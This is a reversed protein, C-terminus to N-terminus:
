HIVAIKIVKSQSDRMNKATVNAFYVGSEVDEVNWIVENPFGKVPNTITLTEVYFGALNYIKIEITEASECQIRLKVEDDYVPNPYAYSLDNVFLTTQVDKTLYKLHVSRSHFSDGNYLSWENGQSDSVEDFKWLYTSTSIYGFQDIKGVYVVEDNDFSTLQYIIEGVSNFIFIKNGNKSKIVVEPHPDGIINNVFIKSDFSGVIPFGPLLNLNKDYAYLNGGIDSLLIDVHGDLNLDSAVVSKYQAGDLTNIVTGNKSIHIGDVSTSVWLTDESDILTVEQQYLDLEEVTLSDYSGSFINNVIVIPESLQGSTETMIMNNTNSDFEFHYLHPDDFTSIINKYPEDPHNSQTLFIKGTYNFNDNDVKFYYKNELDELSAWWLVNEGGIIDKIGDNNIDCISHVNVLSDPFGDVLLSNSITFSMTDNPLPINEIKLFTSAGNNSETNPFSYPGFAPYGGGNISEYEYNGKFWMDGFYGSTPDFFMHINQYGIDQAGDAEELDVGKSERDVNISYWDETSEIISEDIHWILLGSAPLGSDYNPISTIVKNEDYEIDVSDLLVTYLGPYTGTDEWITYRTSDININEKYWNNRHEILFYENQNIQLQLISNSINRAPLLIESPAQVVIPDVWGAWKRTWADPPSPILGNGNNSGQDMLGFVGIGSEGTETNWLPPLGVAFGLMLAFTGTLGFQYQCPDSSSSFISETEPYLLHNQTEPLIIGHEVGFLSTGLMDRDIYTSPIDNPTPDLTPLSFDQGIGAHFVVVIDYQDFSVSEAATLADRFLQTIREEKVEDTENYPNYWSMENPLTFVNDSDEPYITSSELDIGFVQNSVDRFYNDVAKLQSFFYERDHPPPDITYDGCENSNASLLFHGNGTTGEEEDLNFEVRLVAIKLYGTISESFLPTLFVLLFIFYIRSKVTNM